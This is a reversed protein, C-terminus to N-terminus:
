GIGRRAQSCVYHSNTLDCKGCFNACKEDCINDDIDRIVPPNTESAQLAVQIRYTINYRSRQLLLGEYAGNFVAYTKGLYM